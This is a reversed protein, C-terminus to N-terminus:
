SEMPQSRVSPPAIGQNAREHVLFRARDTIARKLDLRTLPGRLISMTHRPHLLINGAEPKHANRVVFWRPALRGLTRALEKPDQNPDESVSGLTMSGSKPKPPGVLCM